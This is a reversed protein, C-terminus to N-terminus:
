PIFTPRCTPRSRPYLIRPPATLTHAARDTRLLAYAAGGDLAMTTRPTATFLIVFLTVAPAHVRLLFACFPTSPPLLYLPSTTHATHPPHARARPRVAFHAARCRPTCPLLPRARRGARLLRAAFTLTLLARLVYASGGSTTGLHLHAAREQGV